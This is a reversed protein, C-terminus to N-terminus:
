EENTSSTESTGQLVLQIRVTQFTSHFGNGFTYLYSKGETHFSLPLFLAGPVRKEFTGTVKRARFATKTVKNGNLILVEIIKFHYNLLSFNGQKHVLFQAVINLM